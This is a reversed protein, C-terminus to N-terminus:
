TGMPPGIPTFCGQTYLLRAQNNVLNAGTPLAWNMFDYTSYTQDTGQTHWVSRDDVYSLDARDDGDYDAVAPLNLFTGSMAGFAVPDDHGEISWGGTGFVARQAHGVGDYDAPAPLSYADKANVVVSDTAGTASSAVTWSRSIPDFTALDTIDDGDYDAPV